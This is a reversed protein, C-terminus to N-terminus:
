SGAGPFDNLAAITADIDADSVDLHPILRVRGPGFGVGLVGRERLHALLDVATAPPAVRLIVINSEVPHARRLLPHKLESVLRRARAHDQALRPLHHALAYRCGEALIGVQRMGGGWMKRFKRARAVTERRGVLASGVPAGLAKSFCVSVTDAPAALDALSIGTTVHANWLRAGDLHVRLGRANAERGIEVIQPQPFIRGGARNHTNELCVLAPPAAHIDAPHLAAAVQAWTFAGSEGVITTLQVGSLVAPAGVEYHVIHADAEVIVQQGPETQSRIALQNGMTGSPVFLAAEKGLLAAVEDQLRNVTPDDGFVDDGVEAAAMAARMGPTPRTITDSRLDIM